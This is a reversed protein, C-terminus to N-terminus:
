NISNELPRGSDCPGSAALGRAALIARNRVAAAIGRRPVPAANQGVGAFLASESQRADRECKCVGGRAQHWMRNESMEKPQSFLGDGQRKLINRRKAGSPVGEGSESDFAGGAKLIRDWVVHAIDM